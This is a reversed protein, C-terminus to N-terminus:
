VGKCVSQHRFPFRHLGSPVGFCCVERCQNFILNDSVNNAGGFGDNFNIGARPGNFNINGKIVTQCLKAQFWMSSQKEYHGLEHVYNNLLYTFRPQQGDTGDNENTYGWGAMASCGIWVFENNSVTVNRTYGSVFVGNGDLRQFLNGDVTIGEAGEVFVAGGRYLGWDGGSPVGWPVMTIDAADRFSLGQITVDRVPSAMTGNISVLTKLKTAVYQETPASDTNNPWLYLKRSAADFFWENEADLAEIVNEIMWKNALLYEYETSNIASANQSDLYLFGRPETLSHHRM